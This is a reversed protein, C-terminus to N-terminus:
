GTLQLNEFKMYVELGTAKSFVPSYELYTERINDRIRSEAKLVEKYIESVLM